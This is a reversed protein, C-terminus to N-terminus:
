TGDLTDIATRNGTSNLTGQIRTKTNGLDRASWDGTGATKGVLAAAIVNMYERATNCNAPANTDMVEDWIQDVTPASATGLAELSDTSNTYTDWDATASKSVLMAFVSDDTVDAGAVAASLLHDLGIDSLATDCAANIADTADGGEIQVVNVDQTATDLDFAHMASANGYTEIVIAEDIWVAPSTQDAVYVVIRAAQMEIASLVISYGTGEDTFSNTTNTQAGEDKMIVSDGAAHVADTKFSAGDIEYLQFDITAEVGYKRLFPGQM